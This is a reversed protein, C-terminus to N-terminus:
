PVFSACQMLSIRIPFALNNISSNQHPLLRKSHFFFVYERTRSQNLFDKSFSPVLEMMPRFTVV